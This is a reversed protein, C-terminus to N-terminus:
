RHPFSVAVFAGPLFLLGVLTISVSRRNELEDQYNKAEQERLKRAEQDLRKMEELRHTHQAELQKIIRRNHSHAFSLSVFNQV